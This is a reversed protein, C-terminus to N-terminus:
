KTGILLDYLASLLEQIKSDPEPAPAKKPKSSTANPVKNPATPQSAQGATQAFGPNNFLQMLLKAALMRPDQAMFQSAPVGPNPKPALKTVFSDPM